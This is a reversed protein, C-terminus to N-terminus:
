NLPVTKQINSTNSVESSFCVKEAQKTFVLTFMKKCPLFNDFIRYSLYKYM